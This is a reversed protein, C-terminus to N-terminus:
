TRELTACSPHFSARALPCQVHAYIRVSPAYVGVPYRGNDAGPCALTFREKEIKIRQPEISGRRHTVVNGLFCLRCWVGLRPHTSIESMAFSILSWMRRRGAGDHPQRIRVDCLICSLACGVCALSLMCIYLDNACEASRGRRHTVSHWPDCECVHNVPHTTVITSFLDCSKPCYRDGGVCLIGSGVVSCTEICGSASASM